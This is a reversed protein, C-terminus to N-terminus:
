KSKINDTKKMKENNPNAPSRTLLRTSGNGTTINHHKYEPMTPAPNAYENVLFIFARGNVTKNIIM